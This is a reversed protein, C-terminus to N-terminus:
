YVKKLVEKSRNVYFKFRSLFNSVHDLEERVLTMEASTILKRAGYTIVYDKCEERIPRQAATHSVKSAAYSTCNELAIVCVLQHM